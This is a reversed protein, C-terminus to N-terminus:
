NRWKWSNKFFTVNVNRSNSRQLWFIKEFHHTGWNYPIPIQQLHSGNSNQEIGAETNQNYLQAYNKKHIFYSAILMKISTM